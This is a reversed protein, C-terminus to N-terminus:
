QPTDNQDDEDVEPPALAALDPIEPPPVEDNFHAIAEDTVDIESAAVLIQDANLIANAGRAVRISELVPGIAEVLKLREARFANQLNTAHQQARRREMRVWHDFAAVRQELEERPLTHRLRALEQEEANLRAKVADVQRQLEATMTDEASKLMQAHRTEHLLRRRSVILIDSSQAAGTVPLALTLALPLSLAM